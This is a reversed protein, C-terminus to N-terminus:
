AQDIPGPRVRDAVARGYRRARLVGHDWLAYRAVEAQCAAAERWGLRAHAVGASYEFGRRVVPHPWTRPRAPDYWRAYERDDMGLYWSLDDHFRRLFLSEDIRYLEGQLSLEATLVRDASAFSGWLRTQSMSARRGLGFLIHMPFLPLLRGLREHPSSEMRAGDQEAEILAPDIKAGTADIFETMAFAVAVGPQGALVEAALGLFSPDRLDDHSHWMFYPASGAHFVRNFNWSAGRNQDSRLLRIRDDQAAYRQVVDVSGDTSANDAVWLTFDAFRQEMLSELALALYNEGNFVPLGIDVRSIM